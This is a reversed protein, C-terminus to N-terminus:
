LHDTFVDGDRGRPVPPHRVRVVALGRPHRNILSSMAVMAAPAGRRAASSPAGERAAVAVFAGDGSRIRWQTAM